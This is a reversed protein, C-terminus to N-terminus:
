WLSRAKAHKIVEVAFDDLTKWRKRITGIDFGTHFAGFSKKHSYGMPDQKIPRQSRSHGHMATGIPDRPSLTGNYKEVALAHDGCRLAGRAPQHNPGHIHTYGKDPHGRDCTYITGAVRRFAAVIADHDLSAM